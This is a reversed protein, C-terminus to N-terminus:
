VGTLGEKKEFPFLLHHSLPSDTHKSDAHKQAQCPVREKRLAALEARAGHRAKGIVGSGTWRAASADCNWPSSDSHALSDGQRCFRIRRVSFSSKNLYHVDSRSCNM